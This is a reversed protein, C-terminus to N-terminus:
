DNGYGRGHGLWLGPGRQLPYGPRRGLPGGYPAGPRGPYYGPPRLPLGPRRLIRPVCAGDFRRFEGPGCGRLPHLNVCAGNYPTLGPPCPIPGGLRHCLNDAGPAEGAPCDIVCHGEVPHYGPNCAQVCKGDRVDQRPCCEGGPLRIAGDPCAQVCKGDHVDQRPCCQGDPLRIAGEPCAQVCKGDRVDREPCCRGDPLGIEGYGCCRRSRWATEGPPCIRGCGGRADAQAGDPCRALWACAIPGDARRLPVAGIPCGLNGGRLPECEGNAGPWTGRPCCRM